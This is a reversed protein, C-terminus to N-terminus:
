HKAISFLTILSSLALLGDLVFYYLMDSFNKKAYQYLIATIAGPILLVIVIRYPYGYPILWGTSILFFLLSIVFLITINRDSLWTVLSRIGISKDYEKDRYDFMICIAYILFFRGAAFLSFDNRWPQGSVLLPLITTVYMWVLALFITKALAVKRLTKFYPHPIKPASYLFTIMASLLLWYWHDLLFLGSIVVGALGIFFLVLHVKKYRALWQMRPSTIEINTPTLWWHFSYSCITAFFVFAIFYPAPTTDILLEYTQYVMIVACLAIFLNSYIFFRSLNRLLNM